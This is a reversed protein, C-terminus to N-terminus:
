RSRRVFIFVLLGGLVMCIAGTGLFYLVLNSDNTARVGAAKQAVAAQHAVADDTQFQAVTTKGDILKQVETLAAELQNDETSGRPRKVEVHPTIGVETVDTGKPTSYGGVTISFTGGGLVEHSNLVQGKGFTTVGVVVARGNDKLAGTLLEAASMTCEDVLVVMPKKKLLDLFAGEEAPMEKQLFSPVDKVEYTTKRLTLGERTTVHTVPGAGAFVSALSVTGQVSGGPNSRLDVLLGQIKASGVSEDLMMLGVLVKGAMDRDDLSPIRIYAINGNLLRVDVADKKGAKMLITEEVEKGGDLYTVKLEEGLKTLLKSGVQDDTQGKISEGNVKTVVDGRRLGSKYAPSGMKLFDIKHNGKSDTSLYLGPDRKGEKIAAMLEVLRANSRYSTWRDKLSTAMESLAKDLEEQNRIKGHYKQPLDMVIQLKEVDAFNQVVNEWQMLFEEEFDEPTLKLDPHGDPLGFLPIGPPLGPKKDSPKTDGEKKDNLQEIAKDLLRDLDIEPDPVVPPQAPVPAPTAPPVQMMGAYTRGDLGFYLVVMVLATALRKM